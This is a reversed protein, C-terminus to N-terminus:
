GQEKTALPDPIPLYHSPRVIGNGTRWYGRSWKARHWWYFCQGDFHAVVQWTGDHPADSVPQWEMKGGETVSHKTM